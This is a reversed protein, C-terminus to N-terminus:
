RGVLLGGGSKVTNGGSSRPTISKFLSAKLRERPLISLSKEMYHYLSQTFKKLESTDVVIHQLDIWIWIQWVIRSGPLTGQRALRHALTSHSLIIQQQMSCNM